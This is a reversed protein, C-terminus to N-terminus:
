RISDAHDFLSRNYDAANKAEELNKKMLFHNNKLGRLLYLMEKRLVCSVWQLVAAKTIIQM